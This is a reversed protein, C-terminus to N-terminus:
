ALVGSKGPRHVTGLFEQMADRAHGAERLGEEIISARIHNQDVIAISLDRAPM